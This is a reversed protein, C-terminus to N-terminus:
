LQQGVWTGLCQSHPRTCCTHRLALCYFTSHNVWRGVGGNRQLLDRYTTCRASFLLYKDSNSYVSSAIDVRCGAIRICYDTVRFPYYWSCSKGWTNAVIARTSTHQSGFQAYSGVVLGSSRGDTTFSTRHCRSSPLRHRYIHISAGIIGYHRCSSSSLCTWYFCPHGCCQRVHLLAM